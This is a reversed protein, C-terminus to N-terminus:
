RILHATIRGGGGLAKWDEENALIEENVFLIVDGGTRQKVRGAFEDLTEGLIAPMKWLDNTDPCVVKFMAHWDTKSGVCSPKGVEAEKTGEDEEGFPANTKDQTGRVLRIVQAQRLAHTGFGDSPVESDGGVLNDDVIILRRNNQGTRM